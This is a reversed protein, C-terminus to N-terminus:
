MVNTRTLFHVFFVSIGIKEKTRFDAISDFQHGCDSQVQSRFEYRQCTHAHACLCWVQAARSQMQWAAAAAREKDAEALALVPSRCLLRSVVFSTFDAASSGDTNAPMSSTSSSSSSSLSSSSPAACYILAPELCAHPHLTVLSTLQSLLSELDLLPATVATPHPEDDDDANANSENEVSSSSSSYRSSRRTQECALLTDCAAWARAVAAMTSDGADLTQFASPSSASSYSASSMSSPMSSSAASDAVSIDNMKDMQLDPYALLDFQHSRRMCAYQLHWVCADALCFPRQTRQAIAKRLDIPQPAHAAYLPSALDPLKVMITTAASAATTSASASAATASAASSSASSSSSSSPSTVSVSVSASSPSSAAASSSKSAEGGDAVVGFALFSENALLQVASWAAVPHRDVVPHILRVFSDLTLIDSGINNSSGRRVGGGGFPSSLATLTRKVHAHCTARIDAAIRAVLLAPDSADEAWHRMVDMSANIQHTHLSTDHAGAAV